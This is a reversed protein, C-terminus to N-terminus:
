EPNLNHVWTEDKTVVREIFDGPDDDYRSLLNRSIDLQTGKQDNTLMRPVWRASVKSMGLIGTRISQVAGFSIGVESIISQLDLRKDCMVLTHVVMFNEDATADKPRASRGDDEVSGRGRM